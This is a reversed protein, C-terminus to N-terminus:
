YYYNDNWDWGSATGNYIGAAGGAGSTGGAGAGVGTYGGGIGQGPHMMSWYDNSDNVLGNPDFGYYDSGFGGGYPDSGGGRYTVQPNNPDMDTVTVGDNHQPFPNDNGTHQGYRSIVYSVGRGSGPAGIALGGLLGGLRAAQSTSLHYGIGTHDAHVLDPDAPHSPPGGGDGPHGGPKGGYDTYGPTGLAPAEHQVDGGTGVGGTQPLWWLSGNLGGGSLGGGAPRHYTIPM